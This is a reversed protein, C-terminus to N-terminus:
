VAQGEDEQRNVGEELSGRTYLHGWKWWFYEQRAPDTFRWLSKSDLKVSGKEGNDSYQVNFYHPYKKLVQKHTKLVVAKRWDDTKCSFSQIEDGVSPSRFKPPVPNPQPEVNETLTIDNESQVSEFSDSDSATPAENIFDTDKDDSDNESGEGAIDSEDESSSIPSEWGLRPPNRSAINVDTPLIQNPCLTIESTKVLYNEQRLQTEVKKIWWLDPDEKEMRVVLYKERGRHKFKDKKLTVLAGPWVNIKKAIVGNHVKSKASAPHNILRRQFQDSALSNDDIEIREGTNQDRTTIIERASLKSNRVRRNLSATILAREIDNIVGGSPRFKLKENKFEQVAKEAVPNGDKNKKRALQISINFRGLNSDGVLSQMGSANDVQMELGEPPILEATSLIIAERISDACENPILKSVTFNSLKERAIFILQRDSKIIDASWKSGVPGSKTTSQEFIERPAARLSQCTDCKEWVEHIVKALSISYWYRSMINELEKRSPCKCKVHLATVLGKMISSPVVILNKTNGVGDRVIYIILGKNNLTIKGQQFLTYLKKLESSGRIRRVPITGGGIHHKLKALTKDSEQIDKWGSTQTFPIAVAGSEIDAVTLAANIQPTITQYLLEQANPGSEEFAFNCVHCNGDKMDCPIPNRSDFDGPHNLGPKHVIYSPIQAITSLYYAVRVSNSFNGRILRRYALVCPMNDTAVECKEGSEWIWPSHNELGIKITWAEGECPPWRKKTKLRAGFNRVKLLKGDRRVYLPAGGAQNDFSYDPYMVTKEGPRIMALIDPKAAAEQVKKFQSRLEETWVIREASKKGSTVKELPQLLLYYQPLNDKMQKVAGNFGRLQKVTVPFSAKSISSMIHTSPSMTGNEWIRGLINVKKPCILTKQAKLTIGANACLALVTRFRSIAEEPSDGGIIMNDAIRTVEGAAMSPQLVRQIVRDANENANLYGMPQVLYIREGGFPTHTGFFRLSDKQLPIQWHWHKLDTIIIYRWKGIKRFAEEVTPLQLRTPKLYPSLSQMGTVLRWEGTPNGDEMKPVIYSTHMHTVTINLDEPRGLIGDAEMQDMIDQQIRDMKESQVVRKPSYSPPEVLSNNLTVRANLNGLVGNYRGARSSFVQKYEELVAKVSQRQTDTMTNGPDVVVKDVQCVPVTPKPKPYLSSMPVTPGGKEKIFSVQPSSKAPADNSLLRVDAIHENRPITVPMLSPNEIRIKGSIISTMTPAPFPRLECIQNNDYVYSFKQGKTVRPTVLVNCDGMSSLEQPAEMEYFDGPFVTIPEPSRLLFTGSSKSSKNSGPRWPLFIPIGSKSRVEICNDVPNPIIGQKMLPNGCIMIDGIGQCVLADFIFNENKYHLTIYVSGLAKLKTKDVQHAGSITPLITLNLYKARIESIVNSEAGTDMICETPLSGVFFKMIPAKEVAVTNVHITNDTPNVLLISSNFLGMEKM